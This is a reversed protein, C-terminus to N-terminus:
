TRSVYSRFLRPDRRRLQLRMPRRNRGYIYKVGGVANCVFLDIEHLLTAQHVFRHILPGELRTDVTLEHTQQQQRNSSCVSVAAIQATYRSATRSAM